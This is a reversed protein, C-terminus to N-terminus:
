GQHGNEQAWRLWAETMKGINGGDESPVPDAGTLTPLAWVWHRPRVALDQLMFPVVSEGMQLIEQFAKNNIIKTTSSLHGTEDRWVAELRRFKAEVSEVPKPTAKNAIPITAM